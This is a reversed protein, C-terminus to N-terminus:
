LAAVRGHALIADGGRKTHPRLLTWRENCLCHSGIPTNQQDPHRDRRCAPTIGGGIESGSVSRFTGLLQPFAEQNFNFV